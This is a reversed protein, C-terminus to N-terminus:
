LAASFCRDDGVREDLGGAHVVDIWLGPKAPNEGADCVVLHGAELIEHRPVPCGFLDVGTLGCPYTVAIAASCGFGKCLPFCLESVMSLM